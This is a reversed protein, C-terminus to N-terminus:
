LRPAVAPGRRTGPRDAAYQQQPWWARLRPLGGRPRRFRGPVTLVLSRGSGSTNRLGRVRRPRDGCVLRPHGVTSM